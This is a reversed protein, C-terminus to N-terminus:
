NIPYATEVIKTDKNIWMEVTWKEFKGRVLIREGQTKLKQDVNKYAGKVVKQIQEKTLGWFVTNKGRIKEPTEEWHGEYIHEWEYSVKKHSPLDAPQKGSNGSNESSSHFVIRLRAAISSLASSSTAFGHLGLALGGVM